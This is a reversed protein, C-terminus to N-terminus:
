TVNYACINKCIFEATQMSGYYLTIVILLVQPSVCVVAYGQRSVETKVTNFLRFLFAPLGILARSSKRLVNDYQLLLLSLICIFSKRLSSESRVESQGIGKPHKFYQLLTTKSFLFPKHKLRSRNLSCVTFKIINIWFFFFVFRCTSHM